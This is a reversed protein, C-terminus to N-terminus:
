ASKLRPQSHTASCSGQGRVEAKLTQQFGETFPSDSLEVPNIHLYFTIERPEREYNAIPETEELVERSNRDLISYGITPRVVGYHDPFIVQEM